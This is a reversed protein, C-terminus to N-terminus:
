AGEGSGKLWLGLLIILGMVAIFIIGYVWAPTGPVIEEVPLDDEDLEGIERLTLFVERGGPDTSEITFSTTATLNGKTATVTVEDGVEWNALSELPYFTWGSTNTITTASAETRVHKVQVSVGSVTNNDEDFVTVEVLYPDVIAEAPPPTCAVIMMMSLILMTIAMLGIRKM